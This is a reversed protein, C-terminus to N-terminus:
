RGPTGVPTAAARRVGAPAGVAAVSSCRAVASPRDATRAIHLRVVTLRRASCSNRGMFRASTIEIAAATATAPHPPVDAECVVEVTVGLAVAFTVLFVFGCLRA